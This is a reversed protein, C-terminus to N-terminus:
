NNVSYLLYLYNDELRKVEELRLTKIHRLDEISELSEGDILTPTDKGGVLCPAIVILVRDILGKRLFISNLTGGSQITVREAGYKEKLKIFLDEFDIEQEYCMIVLNEKNVKFAPHEKNTTVLYLTKLNDCLNIVGKENLNKNDIIVFNVSPCHIPNNDTNVGMKSMVFGSNLSFEDTTKEIDYYQHLGEKVGTINKYDKDVDRELTSGTSIKGDVSILLFLTNFTRNM